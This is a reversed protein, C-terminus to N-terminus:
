ATAAAAAMQTRQAPLWSLRMWQMADYTLVALLVETAAQKLGRLRFKRLGIKEKIWANPFEATGGRTRYVAKSEESEMKKRFAATVPNEATMVSVTRGKGALKPCCQKQFPCARCDAEEARYQVYRSGRKVSQGCRKLCKGAPCQLGSNDQLLTFASPGFAPDIGASKVGAARKAELNPLSGYFDIEKEQMAVISAANTFGGDAVVKDPYRGATELVQEMADGLSAGDSSCQTLHVGVVIRHAADTSIQVNYAPTMARNGHKMCRAEPEVVSVRAKEQGAKQKSERIKKVEEAAEEVRRLREQAARKQAAQRRSSGSEEAAGASELQEVMERAREMQKQVTEERRFTDAGAFAAIKTGDHAVLELNVFGQQSLVGLLNVMTERLEEAHDRRFDSLTHHNIEGLGALWMLGPEYELLREIERASTVHESYAYLWVSLLLRPNWAPAGAQGERTKVPKLFGEMPLLGTLDWIARVKHEPGVLEEVVVPRLLSQSRDIPKLKPARPAAERQAPREPQEPMELLPQQSESM